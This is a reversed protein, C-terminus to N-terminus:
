RERSADPSVLRGRPAVSAYISSSSAFSSSSPAFSPAGLDRLRGLVSERQRGRSRCAGAGRLRTRHREEHPPGIPTANRRSGQAGLNCPKEPLVAAEALPELEMGPGDFDHTGGRLVPWRLAAAFHRATAVLHPSSSSSGTMESGCSINKSMTREKEHRQHRERRTGALHRQVSYEETM